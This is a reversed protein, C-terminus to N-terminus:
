DVYSLVNVVGLCVGSEKLGTRAVYLEPTAYFIILDILAQLM